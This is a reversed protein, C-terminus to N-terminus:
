RAPLWANQCAPPDDLPVARFLAFREEAWPLSRPSLPGPRDPGHDVVEGDLRYRVSVEPHDALYDRLNAAPLAFGSDAYQDLGDDDSSLIEVTASQENRLEATAPVVLHNTEGDGTILNAYMNFGTATKLELYPSLGNLVALAVLAVGAVGVPRLSFDIPSSTAQPSGVAPSGAPEAPPRVLGRVIFAALALWTAWGLVMAVARVSGPVPLHFVAVQAAFLAIWPRGRGLTLRPLARDLDVLLRRPAFLSLLPLLVLFQSSALSGDLF